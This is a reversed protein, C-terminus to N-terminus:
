QFLIRQKGVRAMVARLQIVDANDSRGNLYASWFVSRPLIGFGSYLMQRSWGVLWAEGSRILANNNAPTEIQLLKEGCGNLQSQDFRTAWSTSISAEVKTM